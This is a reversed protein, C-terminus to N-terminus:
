SGGENFLENDVITDPKDTSQEPSLIPPEIHGGWPLIDSLREPQGLLNVGSFNQSGPLNYLKAIDEKSYGKELLKEQVGIWDIAVRVSDPENQGHWPFLKKETETKTNGVIFIGSVRANAGLVTGVFYTLSVIVLM